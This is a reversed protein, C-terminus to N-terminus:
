GHQQQEKESRDPRVILEYQAVFRYVEAPQNDLRQEYPLSLARIQAISAEAYIHQSRHASWLAQLVQGALLAGDRKSGEVWCLVNVTPRVAFRLDLETGGDAEVFVYPLRDLLRDDQQTEVTVAAPLLARLAEAVVLDVYPLAAGTM